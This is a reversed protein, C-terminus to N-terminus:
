RALDSLRKGQFKLASFPPPKQLVQGKMATSFSNIDSLTIHDLVYFATNSLQQTCSLYNMGFSKEMITKGEKNYSDTARGFVCSSHYVKSGGLFAPLKSCGDNIGVM